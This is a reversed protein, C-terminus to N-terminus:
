RPLAAAHKREYAGHANATAYNFFADAPLPKAFYYGQAYDCRKRILFALQETTEVGEAVVKMGMDHAIGIIATVLRRERESDLKAVFARDIKLYGAPIRTLYNLSSYGTGFDDIAIGIGAAAIRDLREFQNFQDNILLSETLELVISESAGARSIREIVLDTLDDFKVLDASMNISIQMDLGRAQWRLRQRLAEAVAWEGILAILGFTEAVPIFRDPMLLGKEPHRWRVLAECKEVRATPLKVIPQYFLELQGDEIAHRLEEIVSIREINEQHVDETFFRYTRRGSNKAAYMAADAFKLVEELNTSDQPFLCIGISAALHMERHEVVFPASLQSLIAEAVRSADDPSDIRKLLVLFEDGGFRAVIDGDRISRRLRAATEILVADGANHGLTDNINKFHDLDVMVAAGVHNAQIASRMAEDLREQFLHRNPLGTLADYNAQWLVQAESAKRETVDQVTGTGRVARGLQDFELDAREQVYRVEGDVVIRHEIDYPEGTLAREWALIVSERDDPHVIDLFLEFSLRTGPEIGFMRHTEESWKLEDTTLDLTWSGIGAVAQARKLHAESERLAQQAQRQETIDYRIALYHTTRDGDGKMPVITTDLWYHSGDKARNCLEGQWCGGAAITRWMDQFFARSHRGSNVIRHTQGILEERSYGSIECFRDNAHVIRGRLDTVAVIVRQDLAAQYAELRRLVRRAENRSSALLQAHRQLRLHQRRVIWAVPLIVSLGGMVLILSLLIGLNVIGSAAKEFAGAAKRELLVVVREAVNLFRDSAEQLPLSAAVARGRRLEAISLFRDAQEWLRFRQDQLERLGLKAEGNRDPWGSAVVSILQDLRNADEQMRHVARQLQEVNGHPTTDALAAYRGIQQSLMRQRGAMNMIEAYAELRDREPFMAMAATLGVVAFFGLLALMASVIIIHPRFDRGDTAENDARDRMGLWLMWAAPPLAVLILSGAKIAIQVPGQLVPEFPTMASALVLEWAFVASGILLGAVLAIRTSVAPIDTLGRGVILGSIVAILIPALFLYALHAIPGPLGSELASLSVHAAIKIAVIALALSGMTWLFPGPGAPMAQRSAGRPDAEAMLRSATV